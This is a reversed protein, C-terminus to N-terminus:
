TEAGDGAHEHVCFFAPFCIRRAADTVVPSVSHKGVADVDFLVLQNFGPPLVRERDGIRLHLQGGYEDRWDRCFYFCGAVRRRFDGLKSLRDSHPGLYHGQHYRTIGGAQCSIIPYDTIEAVLELFPESQLEAIIRSAAHEDGHEDTHPDYLYYLYTFLGYERAIELQRDLAERKKPSLPREFTLTKPFIGNRVRLYFRDALADVAAAVEEADGEALVDDIVVFRARAYDRHLAARDVSLDLM